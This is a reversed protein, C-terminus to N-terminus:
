KMMSYNISRRFKLILIMGMCVYSNDEKKSNNECSMKKVSRKLTKLNRLFIM